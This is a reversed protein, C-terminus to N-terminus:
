YINWIAKIIKKREYETAINKAADAALGKALTDSLDAMSAVVASIIAGKQTALEAAVVPIIDAAVFDNVAKSVQGSIDWKHDELLREIARKKVEAQIADKNDNLFDRLDAETM